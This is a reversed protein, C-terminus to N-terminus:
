KYNSFDVKLQITQNKTLSASKSDPNTRRQQLQVAEKLRESFNANSSVIQKFQEAHKLAIDTLKKLAEEHLKVKRKASSSLMGGHQHEVNLLSVLASIYISLMSTETVLGNM